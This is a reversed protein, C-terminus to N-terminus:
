KVKRRALGLVALGAIMMLSSPEPVAAWEIAHTNGSSDTAVGFVNGLNDISYADSYIFDGPLLAQLSVASDATGSWIMAQPAMPLSSESAYGVQRRGNTGRAQSSRYGALNTPNLDIASDATGTWLVARLGVGQFSAQTYGVQQNACVAEAFSGFFHGLRIPDLSVASDASGKWLIANPSAGNTSNSYGVQHVGDTGLARSRFYGVPNLNVASQPTGTWLIAHESLFYSGSGVQQTGNNGYATSSDFPGLLTPHLDVASEATGNWLLAHSNTPSASAGGRGVQQIGNTANVITSSLGPLLTPTLDTFVGSDAYVGSGSILQGGAAVQGTRAYLLNSALLKPAITYLDVVDYGAAAAHSGWPAAWLLFILLLALRKQLRIRQCLRCTETSSDLM